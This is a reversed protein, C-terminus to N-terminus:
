RCACEVALLRLSRGASSVRSASTAHITRSIAAHIEVDWQWLAAQTGGQEIRIHAQNFVRPRAYDALQSPSQFAKSLRYDISGMLLYESLCSDPAGETQLPVASPRSGERQSDPGLSASRAAQLSNLYVFPSTPSGRTAGVFVFLALVGVLQAISLQRELRIQLLRM